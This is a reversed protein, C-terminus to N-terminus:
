IASGSQQEACKRCSALKLPELLWQRVWVGKDPPLFFCVLKVPFALVFLVCLLLKFVISAAFSVAGIVMVAAFFLVAVLGFFGGLTQCSTQIVQGILQGLQTMM